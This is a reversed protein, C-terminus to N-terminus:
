LTVKFVTGCGNEFPCGSGNGGQGTNGYLSGGVYILNGSPGDGDNGGQFRYLVTETGSTTVSYVTGCGYGGCGTGGGSLTAGYLTGNVNILGTPFTGDTAEDNGYFRYIVNEDGGTTISFVTGCGSNMGTCAGGEETVGYLTGSNSLLGSSPYRGDRSGSTGFAYLVNEAGGTTLSFVTGCGESSGSSCYTDNGGNNTTGYLTGSLSILPQSLGIGDSGGQFAYLVSFDPPSTDFTLKFVTGCGGTCNSSGGGASTGGYFALGTSLLYGPYAGDSGGQFSHLMTEVGGTTLSYVSGCGLTCNTSGGGYVTTGAFKSGSYIPTRPSAGDNGGLFSYVM